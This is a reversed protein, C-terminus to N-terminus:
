TNFAKGRGKGGRGGMSSHEKKTTTRYRMEHYGYSKQADEKRDKRAMRQPGKKAM